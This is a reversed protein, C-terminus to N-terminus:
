TRTREKRGVPHKCFRPMLRDNAAFGDDPMKRLKEAITGSESEDHGVCNAFRLAARHEVRELEKAVFRPDPSIAHRFHVEDTSENCKPFLMM